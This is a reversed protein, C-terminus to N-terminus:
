ELISHNGNMFFKEVGLKVRLNEAIMDFLLFTFQEYVTKMVQQSNIVPYSLVCHGMKGLTSEKNSTVVFLTGGASIAQEAFLIMSPTEGSSSNVIVTSGTRIRPISTDGIMSSRLGMHSLRMIFARLSYGMRGAGLGVIDDGTVISEHLTKVFHDYEDMDLGDFMWCLEYLMRNM